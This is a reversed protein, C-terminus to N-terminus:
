LQRSFFPLKEFVANATWDIPGEKRPLQLVVGAALIRIWYKLIQWLANYQMVYISKFYVDKTKVIDYEQWLIVIDRCKGYITDCGCGVSKLKIISYILKIFWQLQMTTM